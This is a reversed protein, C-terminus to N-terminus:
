LYKNLLLDLRKADKLVHNMSEAIAKNEDNIDSLKIGAYFLPIGTFVEIPNLNILGDGILFGGSILSALGVSSPISHRKYRTIDQFSGDIMVETKTKQVNANTQNLLAYDVSVLRRPGQYLGLVEEKKEKTKANLYEDFFEEILPSAVKYAFIYNSNKKNPFTKLFDVITSESLAKYEKKIEAKRQPELKGQVKKRNEIFELENLLTSM